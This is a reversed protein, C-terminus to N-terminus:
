LATLINAPVSPTASYVAHIPDFVSTQISPFLGKLAQINTVSQEARARNEGSAGATVTALMQQRKLEADAIGKTINKTLKKLEKPLIAHMSDMNEIDKAPTDIRYPSAVTQRDFISVSSSEVLNRIGRADVAGALLDRNSRQYADFSELIRREEAYDTNEQM